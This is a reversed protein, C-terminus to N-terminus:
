NNFYARPAGLVPLPQPKPKKKRVARGYVVDIRKGPLPLDKTVMSFARPDFAIQPAQTAPLRVMRTTGDPELIRMQGDRLGAMRDVGKDEPEATYRAIMEANRDAQSRAAKENKILTDAYRQKAEKTSAARRRSGIVKQILAWRKQTKFNAIAEESWNEGMFLLFNEATIPLERERAFKAVVDEYRMDWPASTTWAM